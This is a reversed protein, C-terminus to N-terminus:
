SVTIVGHKAQIEAQQDLKKMEEAREADAWKANAEIALNLSELDKQSMNENGLIINDIETSLRGFESWFYNYAQNTDDNLKNDNSIKSTEDHLASNLAELQKLKNSMLTKGRPNKDVVEALANCYADIQRALIGFLKASIITQAHSNKYQILWLTTFVSAALSGIAMLMAFLLSTSPDSAMVQSVLALGLFIFAFIAPAPKKLLSIKQIIFTAAIVFFQVAYQTYSFILLSAPTDLGIPLGAVLRGLWPLLIGIMWLLIYTMKPSEPVLNISM